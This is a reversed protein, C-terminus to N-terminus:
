DEMPKPQIKSPNNKRLLLIFILAYNALDLATDSASEDSVKLHGKKVFSGLRSMKDCMRILCSVHEPVGTIDSSLGFNGIQLPDNTNSYDHAKADRIRGM